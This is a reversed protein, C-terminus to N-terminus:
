KDSAPIKVGGLGGEGHVYEAVKPEGEVLKSSGMYVPVDSRGLNYLIDLTNKTTSILHSNGASTSVGLLMIRLLKAAMILAIADDLGPDADLWIRIIDTGAFFGDLPMADEDSHASHQMSPSVISLVLM